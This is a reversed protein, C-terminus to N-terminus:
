EEIGIYQHFKKITQITEEFNYYNNEIQCIPTLFQVSNVLMPQTLNKLERVSIKRREFGFGAKKCFDEFLHLCIGDLVSQDLSSIFKDGDWFLLNSTAAETVWGDRCFIM